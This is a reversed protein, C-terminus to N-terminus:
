STQENSFLVRYLYAIKRYTTIKPKSVHIKNYRSLTDGRKRCDVNNEKYCVLLQGNKISIETSGGEEGFVSRRTEEYGVSFKVTMGIYVVLSVLSIDVCTFM